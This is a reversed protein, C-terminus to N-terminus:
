PPMTRTARDSFMGAKGRIHKPRNLSRWRWAPSHYVTLKKECVAVGDYTLRVTIDEETSSADTSKVTVTNNNNFTIGVTFTNTLGAASTLTGDNVFVPTGGNYGLTASANANFTAGTM